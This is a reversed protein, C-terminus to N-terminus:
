PSPLQMGPHFPKWITTFPSCYSSQHTVLRSSVSLARGLPGIFKNVDDGNSDRECNEDKENVLGVTGRSVMGGKLIM